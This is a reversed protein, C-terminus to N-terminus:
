EKPKKLKIQELNKFSPGEIVKGNTDFRSGHCPCDWSKEAFNWHVTCGMHPCIPSLVKVEGKDDKSVAFKGEETQILKGENPSISEVEKPEGNKFFDGALKGLVNM